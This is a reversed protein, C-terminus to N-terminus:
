GLQRITVRRWAVPLGPLYSAISDDIRLKGQESLQMVAAATFQKTVSGIRYVSQATAPVNQELDAMGWAKLSITDRGRVVAIAVSPSRNAAVFAAGLSDVARGVAAPTPRVQASLISPLGVILAVRFLRM